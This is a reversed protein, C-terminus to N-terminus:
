KKSVDRNSLINLLKFYIFLYVTINIILISLLIQNNYLYKYSLGIAILNYLCILFGSLSNAYKSLSKKKNLLLFLISHLHRKDAIDVKNNSVYRRIISFLNEFAPYWLLNIAIIPNLSNYNIISIVIFSIIISIVYVGNDGLFCKGLFNYIYFVIFTILLYNIDIYFNFGSIFLLVIIYYGILNTNVGDIFNSGNLLVIICASTFIINFEKISMFKDIFFINTQNIEIKCLYIFLFILALQIMLRLAPIFNPRTDSFYGLVFFLLLVFILNSNIDINYIIKCVIVSILIYIGGSLAIKEKYKIKHKLKLDILFNLKHQVYNICTILLTNILFFNIYSDM